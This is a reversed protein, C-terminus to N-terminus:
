KVCSIQAAAMTRASPEVPVFSTAESADGCGSYMAVTPYPYVPRTFKVHAPDLPFALRRTLRLAHDPNNSDLDDNSVHSGTVQTPPEDKEVWSELYSLWDVAFAGAGLSHNMGPILFLRFFSQTAARGGMIKEAMEYYDVTHLPMGAADSWGAYVLLKGGAAKFRRLDPNVAASLAEAVGLRKYDRDFDFDEPKWTPGPDPDFAAYRFEERVFEYTRSFWDIWTRESGKLAAPMYIPEGNSTVAGGYIKRAAEVQVASLCEGRKGVGCRLEIPDFACIRPDGILGDAVADNLDCRAVVARHLLELDSQTFLPERARDTFWRNGWLLNLHIGAVSLSPVGAIIGDFDWPFRQAAMMAQRGGTSSGMFYSRAPARKYYREVIAKSAVATVHTGRYAHDIEAQTNNYAWLADRPTSTHGNDSVVCAYGKHLVAECFPLDASGCFGGCGLQILKGNWRDPLALRLGVSPAVYGTVECAGPKDGSHVHKSDIVRTPADIVGAFDIQAIAACRASAETSDGTDESGLSPGPIGTVALFVIPLCWRDSMDNQM